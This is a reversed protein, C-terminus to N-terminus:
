RPIFCLISTLYETMVMKETCNKIIDRYDTKMFISAETDSKIKQKLKENENQHIDSKEKISSTSTSFRSQMKQLIDEISKQNRPFRSEDWSFHNLLKDVKYYNNRYNISFDFGPELDLIKKELTKLYFEVEHDFKAIEDNVQLLTDFSEIIIGRM